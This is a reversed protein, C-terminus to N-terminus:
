NSKRNSTSSFSVGMEANFNVVPGPLGTDYEAAWATAMGYASRTMVWGIQADMFTCLADHAKHEDFALEPHSHIFTNLPWLIPELSDIYRDIDVLIPEM